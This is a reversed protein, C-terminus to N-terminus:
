KVIGSMCLHTCTHCVYMYVYVIGIYMCTCVFIHVDYVHICTCIVSVSIFNVKAHWDSAFPVLGRLAAVSNTSNVRVKVGQRARISTLADGGFAVQQVRKGEAGQRPVYSHLEDMIKIM